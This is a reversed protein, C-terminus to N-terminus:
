FNIGCRHMWTAAKAALLPLFGREEKKREHADAINCNDRNKYVYADSSLHLRNDLYERTSGIDLHM